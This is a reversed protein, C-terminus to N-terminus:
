HHLKKTKPLIITKSGIYKKSIEQQIVHTIDNWHKAMTFVTDQIFVYDVHGNMQERSKSEIANLAFGMQAMSFLKPDGELLSKFMPWECELTRNSEHNLAQSLWGKFRDPVIGEPFKTSLMADNIETALKQQMDQQPTM